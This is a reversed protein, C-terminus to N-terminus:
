DPLMDETYGKSRLFDNWEMDDIGAIARQKNIDEFELVMPDEYNLYDEFDAFGKRRLDRLIDKVALKFSRAIPKRSQMLVEYLGYETLFWKETANGRATTNLNRTSVLVKESPDIKSLMHSTNGVSYDILLAMDVALFLPENSTGYIDLNKGHVQITRLIDLRGNEKQQQIEQKQKNAYLERMLDSNPYRNEM